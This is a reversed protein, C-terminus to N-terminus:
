YNFFKKKKTLNVDGSGEVKTCYLINIEPLPGTCLRYKMM